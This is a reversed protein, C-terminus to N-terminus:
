QRNEPRAAIAQRLLLSDLSARIRLALLQCDTSTSTQEPQEVVILAMDVLENHQCIFAFRRKKM